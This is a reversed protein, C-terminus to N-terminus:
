LDRLFKMNKIPLPSSIKKYPIACIICNNNKEGIYMLSSSCSALYYSDALIKFINHNIIRIKLNRNKEIIKQYKYKTDNPHIKIDILKINKIKKINSLFFKFAEIESYEPKKNYIKKYTKSLPETFFTCKNKFNKKAKYNSIKMKAFKYFYNERLKISVYKPFVRLCKNYAHKDFTWIENPFYYKKKLLFREKYNTWGDILSVIRKKKKLIEKIARKELDHNWSTSTYFIDGYKIADNFNIKKYKINKEKFFIETKNSCCLYLLKKKFFHFYSSMVQAGGPDHSFLVIKKSIM